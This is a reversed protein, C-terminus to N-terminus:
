SVLRAEEQGAATAQRERGHTEDSRHRGSAAGRGRHPVTMRLAAAVMNKM